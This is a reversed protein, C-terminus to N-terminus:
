PLTTRAVEDSDASAYADGVPVTDYGVSRRWASIVAGTSSDLLRTERGTLLLKGAHAFVDDARELGSASWVVSGGVPDLSAMRSSDGILTIERGIAHVRPSIVMGFASGNSSAM